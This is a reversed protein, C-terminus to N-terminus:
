TRVIRGSLMTSLPVTVVDGRKLRVFGRASAHDANRQYRRWSGATWIQLQGDADVMLLAGPNRAKEFAYWLAVDTLAAVAVDCDGGAVGRAAELWRADHESEIIGSRM